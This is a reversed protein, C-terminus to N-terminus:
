EEEKSVVKLRKPLVKIELPLKPGEDGDINSEYQSNDLTDLKLNKTKFYVINESETIGGFVLSPTMSILDSVHISKIAIVHM